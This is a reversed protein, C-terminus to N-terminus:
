AIMEDGRDEPVSAVTMEAGQSDKEPSSTTFALPTDINSVIARKRLREYAERTNHSSHALILEPRLKQAFSRM